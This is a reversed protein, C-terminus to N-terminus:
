RIMPDGGHAADGDIEGVPFSGACRHWRWHVGEQHLCQAGHSTRDTTVVSIQQDTLEFQLRCRSTAKKRQRKGTATALANQIEAGTPVDNKLDLEVVHYKVGAEDLVGKAQLHIYLLKWWFAELKTDVNRLWVKLNNRLCAGLQM